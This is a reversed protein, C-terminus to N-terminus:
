FKDQYSYNISEVIDNFREKVTSQVDKCFLKLYQSLEKSDKVMQNAVQKKEKEIKTIQKKIVSIEVKNKKPDIKLNELDKKLPELQQSFEADKQISGKAKENWITILEQISIIQNQYFILIEALSSINNYLNGNYKQETIAAIKLNEVGSPDPNYQKVLNSVENFKTNISKDKEISILKAEKSINIGDAIMNKKLQKNRERFYLLDQNLKLIETSYAKSDANKKDWLKKEINLIKMNIRNGIAISDMIRQNWSEITSLLTIFEYDYFTILENLPSVYSITQIKSAPREISIIANKETLSIEISLGKAPQIEAKQLAFEPLKTEENVQVVPKQDTINEQVIVPPQEPIQNLTDIGKLTVDQESIEEPIITPKEQTPIIGETSVKEPNTPTQKEFAIKMAQIVRPSVNQNTLINVSDLSMNFNVPSNNIEDIIIEDSLKAKVMKIITSNTLPENSQAYLHNIAFLPILLILITKKM